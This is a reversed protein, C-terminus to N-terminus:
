ALHIAKCPQIVPQCAFPEYIVPQMFIGPAIKHHNIYVAKFLDVVLVAM